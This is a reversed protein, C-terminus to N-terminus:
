VGFTARRFARLLDQYSPGEATFLLRRQETDIFELRVWMRESPLVDMAREPWEILAVVDPAGLWDELGLGLAERPDELRYFDVHLLIQDGTPRRHERVLVFSPSVLPTASGWGRGIGQALVTKGAGLAGQLCIM